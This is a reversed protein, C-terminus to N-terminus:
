GSSDCRAGATFAGAGVTPAEFNITVNNDGGNYIIANSFYIISVGDSNSAVMGETFLQIQNTEDAYTNGVALVEALNPTSGGGGAVFELGSEDAKVAVVKSGQGTYGSPADVDTLEIFETVGGGGGLENVEVKKNVGGQVIEILETGWLPTFAPSLETIKVNAM